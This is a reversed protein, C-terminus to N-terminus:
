HFINGRVVIKSQEHEEIIPLAPIQVNFRHQVEAYELPEANVFRKLTHTDGEVGYLPFTSDIEVGLVDIVTAATSSHLLFSLQGRKFRIRDEHRPHLDETFTIHSLARLVREMADGKFRDQVVQHSFIVPFLYPLV